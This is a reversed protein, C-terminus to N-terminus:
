FTVAWICWSFIHFFILIGETWSWLSNLFDSSPAAKKSVVTTMLLVNPLQLWRIRCLSGFEARMKVKDEDECPRWRNVLWMRHAWDERGARWPHPCECWGEPTLGGWFCPILWEPVWKVQGRILRTDLKLSLHRQLWYLSYTLSPLSPFHFLITCKIQLSM